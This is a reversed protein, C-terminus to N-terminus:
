DIAADPVPPVERIRVSVTERVDFGSGGCAFKQFIFLEVHVVNLMQSNAM